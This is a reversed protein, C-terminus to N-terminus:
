YIGPNVPQKSRVVTIMRRMPATIAANVEDETPPEIINMINDEKSLLPDSGDKTV